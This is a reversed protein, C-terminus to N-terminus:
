ATETAAFKVNEGVHPVAPIRYETVPADPEPMPILRLNAPVEEGCTHATLGAPLPENVAPEMPTSDALAAENNAQFAARLDALAAGPKPLRDHKGAKIADAECKNGCYSYQRGDQLRVIRSKEFIEIDSIVPANPQQGAIGSEVITWSRKCEPGECHFVTSATETREVNMRGEGTLAKFHQENARRANGM